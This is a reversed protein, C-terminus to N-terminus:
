KFAHQTSVRARVSLPAYIRNSAAIARQPRKTPSVSKGPEFAMRSTACSTGLSM